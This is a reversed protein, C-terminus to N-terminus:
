AAGLLRAVVPGAERNIGDVLVRLMQRAQEVLEPGETATPTPLPWGKALIQVSTTTLVAVQHRHAEPEVLHQYEDGSYQFSDTEWDGWQYPLRPGALRHHQLPVEVALVLGGDWEERQATVRSLDPRRRVYGPSMVPGTATRWAAAAFMVPDPEEDGWPNFAKRNQAVYAAFRSGGARDAMERDYDDDIRVLTTPTWPMLPGGPSTVPHAPAPAPEVAPGAAATQAARLLETYPIDPSDQQADRARKAATSRNKKPVTSV